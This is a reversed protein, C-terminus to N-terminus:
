NTLTYTFTKYTRDVGLGLQTNNTASALTIIITKNGTLVTNIVPISIDASWSGAPITISLQSPATYNVGAVATGSLTYTVTVDFTKLTNVYLRAIAATTTSVKSSASNTIATSATSGPGTTANSVLYVANPIPLYTKDKKCGTQILLLFCTYILFYKLYSTHKMM